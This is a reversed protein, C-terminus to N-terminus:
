TWRKNKRKKFFSAAIKLNNSITFKILKEGSKNVVGSGYPGINGSPYSNIGIKANWDGLVINYYEKEKQLIEQLQQYFEKHEREEAVSTPAYIQFVAIKLNKEVQIKLIRIRDSYARILSIKRMLEKNIYFGVGRYGKTKGYYYFYNGNRRRYLGEGLKRVESLGVIDFKIKSLAQELEYIRPENALGRCNFHCIDLNYRTGALKKPESSIKSRTKYKSNSNYFGSISGKHKLKGSPTACDQSEV